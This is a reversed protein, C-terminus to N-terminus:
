PRTKESVTQRSKAAQRMIERCRNAADVVGLEVAQRTAPGIAMATARSGRASIPYDKGEFSLVGDIVYTFRAVFGASEIHYQINASKLHFIPADSGPPMIFVRQWIPGTLFKPSKMNNWYDIRGSIAPDLEVLIIDSPSIRDEGGEDSLNQPATTCGSLLVLIPLLLIAFFRMGRYM